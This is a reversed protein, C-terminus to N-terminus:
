KKSYLFFLRLDVYFKLKPLIEFKFQLFLNKKLISNQYNGKTKTFVILMFKQRM